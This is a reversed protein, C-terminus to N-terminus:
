EDLWKWKVERPANARMYMSYGNPHLALRIDSLAMEVDEVGYPTVTWYGDNNYRVEVFTQLFPGLDDASLFFEITRVSNEYPAYEEEDPHEKDPFELEVLDDSSGYIRVEM